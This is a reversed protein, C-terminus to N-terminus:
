SAHTGPDPEAEEGAAPDPRVRYEPRGPRPREGDSPAHFTIEITQRDDREEIKALAARTERDAPVPPAMISRPYLRRTLVVNIEASSVVVRGGLHLWVLLGLVIAFTGYAGNAGRVVHGVYAGGVAQLITWLVTALVIGPWLERSPVVPDTLLRFVALFLAFNLGLAVVIGAVKLGTGGLGGVVAGNVATSLVQLLGLVVLVLLGRLRAFLFDPRERHPVAYVTNFANQAAMTVALGSFMAGILGIALGLGSGHLSRTGLQDGVIPFQALASSLVAHQAGPNGQLVFGLITVLLLLLPFLSFFGWYAILAAHNGAGDESFKKLVAVPVGLVAHRRQLRDFARIPAAIDM